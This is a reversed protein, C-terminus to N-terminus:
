RSSSIGWARRWDIRRQVSDILFNMRVATMKAPCTRADGIALLQFASSGSVSRLRILLEFGYSRLMTATSTNGFGRRQRVGNEAEDDDGRITRAVTTIAM